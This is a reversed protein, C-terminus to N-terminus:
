DHRSIRYWKFDPDNFPQFDAPFFDTMGLETVGFDYVIPNVYLGLWKVNYISPLIPPFSEFTYKM